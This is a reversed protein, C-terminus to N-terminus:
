KAPQATTRTTMTSDVMVARGKVDLAYSTKSTADSSSAVLATTDITLHGSGRYEYRQVAGKSGDPLTMTPSVLFQVTSVDLELAHEDLSRVTYTEVHLATKEPSMRIVQWRAGKGLPGDPLVVVSTQFSTPGALGHERIASLMGKPSVVADISGSMPQDKGGVTVRTVEIEVHAGSADTKGARITVAREFDLTGHQAPAKGVVVTSDTTMHETLEVAGPALAYHLERRPASGTDLVKVVLDTGSPLLAAADSASLVGHEPAPLGDDDARVPGALVAVCVAVLAVIRRV